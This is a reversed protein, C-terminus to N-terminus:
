LHKTLTSLGIGHLACRRVIKFMEAPLPQMQYIRKGTRDKGLRLLDVRHFAVTNIMDGKVWRDHNGWREPLRFPIRIKKHYPMITEPETLSLPVVTCLHPRSAIKPSMVVALRLKVM